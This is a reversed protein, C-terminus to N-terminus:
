RTSSPNPSVPIGLVHRLSRVLKRHTEITPGRLQIQIAAGQLLTLVIDTVVGVDETKRIRGRAQLRELFRRLKKADEKQDRELGARLRPDKEAEKLLEHWIAPDVEGSFMTDLSHAIEEAVDGTDILGEWNRLVEERFQAQMTLLLDRKTPFYLYLAGKSVGIEKAIDDMTADAFGRRSFVTRAAGIIRSRAQAKYGAVVKPM